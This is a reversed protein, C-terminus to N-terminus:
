FDLPFFSSLVYTPVVKVGFFRVQHSKHLTKEGPGQGSEVVPGSGSRPWCVQPSARSGGAPTQIHASDRAVRQPQLRRGRQGLSEGDAGTRGVRQWM